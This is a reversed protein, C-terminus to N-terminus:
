KRYKGIKELNECNLFFLELNGLKKITEM